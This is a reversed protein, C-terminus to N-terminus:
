RATVSKASITVIIFYSTDYITVICWSHGLMKGLCARPYSKPLKCFSLEMIAESPSFGLNEPAKSIAVSDRESLELDAGSSYSCALYTATAIYTCISIYM